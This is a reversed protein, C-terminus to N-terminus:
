GLLPAIVRVVDPLDGDVRLVAVVGVAPTNCLALM